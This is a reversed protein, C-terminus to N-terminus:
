AANPAAEREALADAIAKVLNKSLAAHDAEASKLAAKANELEVGARVAATRKTKFNKWAAVIVPELEDPSVIPPPFELVKHLFEQDALEPFEGLALRWYAEGRNPGNRLEKITAMLGQAQKLRAGVSQAPKRWVDLKTKAVALEKEADEVAEETVDVIVKAADLVNKASRVAKVADEEIKKIEGLADQGLAAKLSNRLKETESNLYEEDAKLKEYVEETYGAKAADVEAILKTLDAIDDEVQAAAAEPRKELLAKLIDSLGLPADTGTESGTTGETTEGSTEEAPTAAETETAADTKTKDNDSM